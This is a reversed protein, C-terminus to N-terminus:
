AAVRGDIAAILSAFGDASMVSRLPREQRDAIRAVRMPDAAGARALIAASRSDAAYSRCEAWMDGIDDLSAGAKRGTPGNRTTSPLRGDAERTGDTDAILNALQAARERIAVYAGDAADSAANALTLGYANGAISACERAHRAVTANNAVIRVLANVRAVTLTTFM